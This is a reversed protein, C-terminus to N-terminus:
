QQHFNCRRHCLFFEDDINVFKEEEKKPDKSRGKQYSGSDDNNIFNEEGICDFIKSAEAIQEKTPCKETL